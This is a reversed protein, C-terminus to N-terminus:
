FLEEHREALDTYAGSSYEAFTEEPDIATQELPTVEAPVGRDFSEPPIEYGEPLVTGAALISREGVVVESGVTANFGVLSGDRVTSDNLIAGHGVMVRKGVVSAHVVATDGIHSEAGIRVPGVDGRLVAGPWVSADPGVTVDGVLVADRSVRADEAIEPTEGEFAYERSDAIEGM